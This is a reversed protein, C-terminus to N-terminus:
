FIWKLKGVYTFSGQNAGGVALYSLDFSLLTTARDLAYDFGGGFSRRRVTDTTAIIYTFQGNDTSDDTRTPTYELYTARLDLRDNVYYFIQGEWFISNTQDLYVNSNEKDHDPFGDADTIGFEIAFDAIRYHGTLNGGVLISSYTSKQYAADSQFPFGFIFDSTLYSQEDGWLRVLGDATIRGFAGGGLHSHSAGLVQPNQDSLVWPVTLGTAISDNWSHTVEIQTSIMGHSSSALDSLNIYLANGPHLPDRLTEVALPDANAMQLSFIGAFLLALIRALSFPDHFSM